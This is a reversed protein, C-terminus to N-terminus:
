SLQSDFSDIIPRLLVDGMGLLRDIEEFKEKYQRMLEKYGVPTLALGSEAEKFFFLKKAEKKCMPCNLKRLRMGYLPTDAEAKLLNLGCSICIGTHLCPAMAFGIEKEMCIYCLSAPKAEKAEKKSEKSSITPRDKIPKLLVDTARFHERAFKKSEDDKMFLRTKYNRANAQHRRNFRCNNGRPCYRFNEHLFLEETKMLYVIYFFIYTYSLFALIIAILLLPLLHSSDEFVELFM